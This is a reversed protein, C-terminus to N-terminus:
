PTDRGIANIRSVSGAPLVSRSAGADADGQRDLEALLDNREREADLRAAEAERAETTVDQLERELREVAAANRAKEADEGLGYGWRVSAANSIVLVSLLGASIWGWPLGSM